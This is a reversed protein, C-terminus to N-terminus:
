DPISAMRPLRLFEEVASNRWEALVEARRRPTLSAWCLETLDRLDAIEIQSGQNSGHATAAKFMTRIAKYANM